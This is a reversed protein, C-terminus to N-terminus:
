RNDRRWKEPSQFRGAWLGRKEERARTEHDVFDRSYRRYAVAWGSEVMAANLFLDGVFCRGIVRNYRDMEVKSCRVQQNNAMKKLADRAKDGCRYDNGQADSCFQRGEPADIGHLRIRTDGIRLSDGDTVKARGDLTEAEAGPFTQSLAGVALVAAIGLAKLKLSM